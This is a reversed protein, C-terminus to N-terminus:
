ERKKNKLMEKIEKNTMKKPWLLNGNINYIPINLTTQKRKLSKMLQKLHKKEREKYGEGEIIKGPGPVGTVIVGKIYKPKLRRFIM